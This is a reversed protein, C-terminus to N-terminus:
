FRWSLVTKVYSNDRYQGLEGARDGGFFGVSLEATLDNKSWQIAPIILFDKDEIGWLATAKLELEDNFFKRSLIATIRTSTIDKGAETDIFPNAGIKNYMLRVLGNGQLNVNIGWILDRDFGLSWVAHPNYVAGDDGSLDKTINVGAEARLNFGAIVQAYDVGLHHYYNYDVLINIKSFDPAGGGLAPLIFGQMDINGTIAPRFLRGFYYQVGLDSPGLTTTFRLGAQAYELTNFEPKSLGSDLFDNYTTNITQLMLPNLQMGSFSLYNMLGSMIIGQFMSVQSPAWRGELDYKNGAFWPIFVGELRSFSNVNWSVHLMPRARKINRPNNMASLDSYDIPNIVDLPGFSDARGWTLKRIGGEMDVPGLYVRLYAEDVSIPSNGQFEPVIKLNIIGEANKGSASFNLNGEFIDGMKIEKNKEASRLGETFYLLSASIKGGIKVAPINWASNDANEGDFGFTGFNETTNESNNEFNFDGTDTDTETEFNQSFLVFPFVLFVLLILPLSFFRNRGYIRFKVSRNNM